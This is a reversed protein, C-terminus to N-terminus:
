TLLLTVRIFFASFCYVEQLCCWISKTLPCVYTTSSVQKPILYNSKKLIKVKQSYSLQMFLCGPLLIQLFAAAQVHIRNNKVRCHLLSTKSGVSFTFKENMARNGKM